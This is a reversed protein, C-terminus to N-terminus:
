LAAGASHSCLDLSVLLRNTDQLDGIIRRTPLPFNRILTPIALIQGPSGGDPFKSIDVVLLEYPGDLHEECIRKLTAYAARSKAHKPGGIYLTLSWRLKGHDNTHSSQMPNTRIYLQAPWSPEPVSISSFGDPPCRVNQNSSIIGFMIPVPFFFLSEAFFSPNNRLEPRLLGELLTKAIGM